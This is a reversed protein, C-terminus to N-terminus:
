WDYSTWIGAGSALRDAEGAISRAHQDPDGPNEGHVRASSEFQVVLAETESPRGAQKFFSICITACTM